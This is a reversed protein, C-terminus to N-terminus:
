DKLDKVWGSKEEKETILPAPEKYFQNQIIEIEHTKQNIKCLQGTQECVDRLEYIKQIMVQTQKKNKKNILIQQKKLKKLKGKM